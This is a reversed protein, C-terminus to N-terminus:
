LAGERLRLSALHAPCCWVAKTPKRLEKAGNHATGWRAKELVLKEHTVTGCWACAGREPASAVPISTQDTM